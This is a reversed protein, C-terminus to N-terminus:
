DGDNKSKLLRYIFRVPLPAVNIKGERADKIMAQMDCEYDEKCTHILKKGQKIGYSFVLKVGNGIGRRKTLFYEKLFSDSWYLNHEWCELFLESQKRTIKDITFSSVKGKLGGEEVMFLPVLLSKCGKLRNVLDITLQVDDEEEGPLGIILTAVPVWNNEKLIHFADEVVKPWEEPTFPKAKGAMLTRILKPSGTEIGCQGSIWDSEDGVQLIASLDKLLDPASVVSSLAFHSIGISKVGPHRYVREFLEKVAPKNIEFGNAKYRLVDEAHLLPGRGFKLNVDVEKLISEISLCRYRQLTPQCFACGRGCGRAIEIIGSVTGGQITPIDPEEVIPGYVVEPLAADLVNKNLLSYVANEGEGIIVCDIGLARRVKADELQWAGAGGVIIKPKYKQVAPHNLIEKFKTTMYAEGGFLQTFTSTAPGIGLPDNETICLIKPNPGIVKDLHEPHAVVVENRTFGNNLFAAEIKRTGCPAYKVSGDKNVPISPCFLSFYLKDPIIGRPICASFGLFIAGNYESMLTRDATLVIKFGNNTKKM